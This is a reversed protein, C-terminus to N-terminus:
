SLAALVERATAASSQPNQGTVLKGDRVAVPAWKAGREYRAGLDCLRSELSFPVVATLGVAAEEENSFAAVRRGKVLPEGDKGKVNVLAAPGHCVAAVVKGAANARGLLSALEESTALDWMVGHGGVVFYADYSEDVDAIRLTTELRAVAEKDALFTKVSGADGTTSKPDAPPRGGAPSAIDVELRAERFVAYPAALEELWFGTPGASADDRAGLRPHSTVIMLVRKPATKM